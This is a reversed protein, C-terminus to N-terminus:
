CRLIEKNKLMSILHNKVVHISIVVEVVEFVM